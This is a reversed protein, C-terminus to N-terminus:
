PITYRGIWNTRGAASLTRGGIDILGTFLGGAWVHGGIATHIFLSTDDAPGDLLLPQGVDGGAEFSYLVTGYVGETAYSTGWTVDAAGPYNIAGNGGSMTGLVYGRAGAAELAIAGSSSETFSVSASWQYAGTTLNWAGLAHQYKLV